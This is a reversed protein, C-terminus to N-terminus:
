SSNHAKGPVPSREAISGALLWIQKEAAKRGYAAFTPGDLPEAGAIKEAEPGMFDVNEPLAVFRAGRGCAEDVLSLATRLNKARDPVSTLQVAAAVIRDM